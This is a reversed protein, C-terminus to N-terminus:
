GMGMLALMLPIYFLAFVTGALVTTAAKDPRLDLQAAFATINAAPPVLSIVMILGHVENGWFHLVAKDFSIVGYALLPWLVFQGAFTLALFRSGIALKKIPALATGIIMMGIIVYAGKFYDRYTFFLDPPRIELANLTLAAFIAYLTPFTALKILSDKVTFRGRAAIYYGVTAEFVLGGLMMFMYVGIWQKDFLLFVVPLGFYGTNSMAACMSLLNARNDGYVARGVHLALLAIITLISFTILPLLTYTPNFDLEVVFGFAVVPVILYIVLAALTDRNIGLYRGGLYGMGIIIYLPFINKLLLLFLPM